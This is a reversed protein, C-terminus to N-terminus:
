MLGGGVACQMLTVALSKILNQLVFNSASALLSKCGISVCDVSEAFPSNYKYLTLRNEDNKTRGNGAICELAKLSEATIEIAFPHNM